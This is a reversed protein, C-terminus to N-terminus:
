KKVANYKEDLKALVDSTIDVTANAYLVQRQAMLQQLELVNMKEIAIPPQAAVVLDIGREKALEAIAATIKDYLLKTQMKERRAFTAQSFEGWNKFEIAATTFANSAEEYQPADPKILEMASRLEEVKKRKETEQEQLSKKEADLRARVDQTGKMGLFIKSPSAIAVKPQPGAQATARAPTALSFCVAALLATCLAPYTKRM